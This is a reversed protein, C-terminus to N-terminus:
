KRFVVTRRGTSYIFDGFFWPKDGFRTVLSIAPTITIADMPLRTDWGEMAEPPSSSPTGTTYGPSDTHQPPTPTQDIDAWTYSAVAHGVIFVAELETAIGGCLEM